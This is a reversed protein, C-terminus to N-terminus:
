FQKSLSIRECQGEFALMDRISMSNYSGGSIKLTRRNINIEEPLCVMADNYVNPICNPQEFVSVIKNDDFRAQNNREWLGVITRNDIDISFEWNAYGGNLWAIDCNLFVQESHVQGATLFLATALVTTNRFM